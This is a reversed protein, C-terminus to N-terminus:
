WALAKLEAIEVARFMLLAAVYALSGLAIAILVPASVLRLGVLVGLLVLAAAVIRPVRGLGPRIPLRPGVLVLGLSVVLLETALTVWAAAVFGWRPIAVLNAAVNFCLGAAAVFVYRLQTNTLIVLIGIMYGLSVPVLTGMLVPLAPAADSFTPGFLLEVLEHAYVLAVVFGGVSFILMVETADQMVRKFRAADATFAAALLPLATTAVSIAVFQSQDFIRYVAAYLGAASSGALELVLVQDIRGYGLVLASTVAVPVGVRLLEGWRARASGFRVTGLRLAVVGQVFTVVVAVVAFAVALGVIGGGVVFVLVTGLGWLVSQLSMLAVTLANRIRLQFIAQLAAPGSLLLTSSLVIGALAMESGSSIAVVALAAVATAALSLVFRLQVLAGIWEPEVAPNEAARRVTVATLGLDCLAGTLSLIAVLSSWEGFEADGLSRAVLVTVFIGLVLNGFRGVIQVALDFTVRQRPSPDPTPETTEEGAVSAMRSCLFAAAGLAGGLLM